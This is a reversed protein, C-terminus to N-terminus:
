SQIKGGFTGTVGEPLASGLIRLETECTKKSTYPQKKKRRKGNTIDGLGIDGEEEECILDKVFGVIKGTGRRRRSM